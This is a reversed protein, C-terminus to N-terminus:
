EILESEKETGYQQSRSKVTNTARDTIFTKSETQYFVYTM